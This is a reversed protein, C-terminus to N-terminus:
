PTGFLGAPRVWLIAILLSFSIVDRWESSTVSLGVSEVVGLLLGGVIAGPFSGLGGLVVVVFAKLMFPMGMWPNVSALPSLLAAAFAGLGAAIVFAWAQIRHSAIGMVQAAQADQSTARLARGFRTYKLVGAAAAILALSAGLILIRQWPMRFSDIRLSGEVFYDVTKFREGWIHFALNQLVISVGLTLAITSFEWGEKQQLPAVAFRQVLAAAAGAVVVAGAVGLFPNVGLEGVLVYTAFGGLMFFEGQALNLIRMTGYVLALGAGVLAYVAGQVLGNLVQELFLTFTM